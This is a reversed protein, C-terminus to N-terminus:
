SGMLQKIWVRMALGTRVGCQGFVGNSIKTIRWKDDLPALGQAVTYRNLLPTM